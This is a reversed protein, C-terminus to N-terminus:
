LSEWLRMARKLSLRLKRRRAEDACGSALRRAEEREGVAVLGEALALGADLRLVPSGLEEAQKMARRLIEVGLPERRDVLCSGRIIQLSLELAREGIETAAQLGEEVTRLARDLEGRERAIRALLGLLSPEGGRQGMARRRELCDEAQVRAEELRGEALLIAAVEELCSAEMTADKGARAFALSEEVLVRGSETEGDLVMISALSVLAASLRRPDSLGRCIQLSEELGRRAEEGEGLLRQVNALNGLCASVWMAEGCERALALARGHARRAQELRGLRFYVIGLNGLTVGLERPRLEGEQKAVAQEFCARAEELRSACQHAIGLSSLCASQLQTDAGQVAVDLAQSLRAIGEDLRGAELEFIAVERMLTSQASRDGLQEALPIGREAHRRASELDGSVRDIVALNRLAQLAHIPSLGPDELAALYRRHALGYVYLSTAEEGQRILELTPLAPTSEPPAPAPGGALKRYLVGRDDLAATLDKFPGAERPATMALGVEPLTEALHIVLDRTGDDTWQADHILVLVPTRESETRLRETWALLVEGRSSLSRQEALPGLCQVFPHHAGGALDARSELVTVGCREAEELLGAAFEECKLGTM